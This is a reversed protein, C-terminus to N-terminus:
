ALDDIFLNLNGGKRENMEKNKLYIEDGEDISGIVDFSTNIEYNDLPPFDPYTRREMEIEYIQELDNANMDTFNISQVDDLGGEQLQQYFNEATVPGGTPSDDEIGGGSPEM